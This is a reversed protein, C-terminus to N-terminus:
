YLGRVFALSTDPAKTIAIGQWAVSVLYIGTAIDFSVCGRAGVM